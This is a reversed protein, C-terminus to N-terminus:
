LRKTLVHFTMVVLIHGMRKVTRAILFEDLIRDLEEILIQDCWLPIIALHAKRGDEEIEIVRKIRGGRTQPFGDLSAHIQVHAVPEANRFVIDRVQALLIEFHIPGGQASQLLPVIHILIVEQSKHVVQRELLVQSGIREHPVDDSGERGPVQDKCVRINVVGPADEAREFKILEEFGNDIHIRDSRIALGHEFGKGDGHFKGVFRVRAFAHQDVVQRTGRAGGEM